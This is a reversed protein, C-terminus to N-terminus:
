GKVQKVVIAILLGFIVVAGLAMLFSGAQLIVLLLLSVGIVAVTAFAVWKLIALAVTAVQDRFLFGLLLVIIFIIIAM